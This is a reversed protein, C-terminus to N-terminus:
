KEVEDFPEIERWAIVYNTANEGRLADYFGYDEYYCEQSFKGNPCDIYALVYAGENPLDDPNKRLDHRRYKDAKKCISELMDYATRCKDCGQEDELHCYGNKPCTYDNILKLADEYTM